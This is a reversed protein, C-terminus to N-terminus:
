FREHEDEDSLDTLEADIGTSMGKFNNNKRSPYARREAKM